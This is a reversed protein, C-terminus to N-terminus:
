ICRSGKGRESEMGIKGGMLEVLQKCINLGLGTGGYKRSVSADVQSFSQFLKDRDERGIGIGTDSM